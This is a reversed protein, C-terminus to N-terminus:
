PSEKRRREIEIWLEETPAYKLIAPWNKPDWGMMAFIEGYCKLNKYARLEHALGQRGLEEIQEKSRLGRFCLTRIARASLGREQWYEEVQQM